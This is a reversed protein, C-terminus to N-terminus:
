SLVTGSSIKYKDVARGGQVVIEVFRKKGLGSSGQIVAGKGDPVDKLAKKFPLSGISLKIRNKDDKTLETQWLTTKCNGFNDIWWVAKPATAVETINLKKAKIEKNKSLFAALRPSFEYSRFQTENIFNVLDKALFGNKNMIKLAELTDVVQIEDVLNYKRVLSLTLGDITAVVLIHKYFFCGFPTGNQWKKAQRDRPAVNVLILGQNDGYADLCDILNGAAELDNKVGCFNVPCQLLSSLRIVQRMLANDDRCDNIITAIM